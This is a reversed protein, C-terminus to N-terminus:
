QYLYIPHDLRFHLVAESPIDLSRGRTAVEAGAGAAAGSVLGIAAGKGGGAIAGIIGGLVAGGAAFKGTRENAGLGERQHAAVLDESNLLYRQGNARVSRLDVAIQGEGVDRVVLHATSGRPIVVNGREDVVDREISATYRAAPSADRARIPDITRVAIETGAPIMAHRTWGGGPAVDTDEYQGERRDYNQMGGVPMSRDASNPDQGANVMLAQVDSIGYERQNGREDVFRITQSNGGEYRGNIRNGNNLVLVQQAFLSAGAILSLAGLQFLRNM